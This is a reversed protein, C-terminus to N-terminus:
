LIFKDVVIEGKNNMYAKVEKSSKQLLYQKSGIIFKSNQYAIDASIVGDEPVILTTTVGAISGVIRAKIDKGAKLIGGRAVAGDKLFEINCEASLNSVYQGKGTIFINGTTKVETDQCYNLYVDVPSSTKNIELQVENDICKILDYLEDYYKIGLAGSGIIKERLYQKIKDMLENNFTNDKLIEKSKDLLDRYKSELLLKIIEGDAKKENIIHKDRIEKITKIILNIEKKYEELFEAHEKIGITDAGGIIKSNISSGSVIVEGESVLKACEVNKNIQICNGAEVKMGDKVSGSVFVDGIFKINGSKIDVDNKAEFVKNVSFMGNKMDPRGEIAAIVKDGDISCGQKAGISLKKKKKRKRDQGFLDIGDEGEKGHVLEGIVEGVKVNVISYLNKYDIQDKSEAEVNRRTKEFYVKISDNEDDIVRKGEAVLFGKPNELSLVKDIEELNIGYVIGKDNLMKVIEERTFRPPMEGDVLETVLKIKGEGRFAGFVKRVKSPIYEITLKAEMRDKDISINTNRKGEVLECEYRIDDNPKVIIFDKKVEEGNVFLKIDSGFELEAEESMELMIKDETVIIKNIQKEIPKEKIGEKEFEVEIICKKKFFSKEESIIKYKFNKRSTSLKSEAKRLCEELKKGSIKYGM